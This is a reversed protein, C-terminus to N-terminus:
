VKKLALGINTLYPLLPLEPPLSLAPAPQVLTWRAEMRQRVAASEGLMGTLCVVPSWAPRSAAMSSNYFDLTRKVETVLTEALDAPTRTPQDPAPSAAISRVILPTWDRVLIVDQTTAEADAILVDPLNVARALALPKLDMARPQLGAMRLGVMLADLADRPVGLAFVQLRSAQATHNGIVQWSLYLEDLPLPLERRAERRVTEDLSKPDVAPLNLIRVLSRQGSLGAVIGRRPAHARAFLETLARSFTEPQAVQGNHMTGPPLAISDWRVISNGSMVLLRAETAEINLTATERNLLGM